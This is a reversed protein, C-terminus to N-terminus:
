GSFYKVVQVIVNEVSPTSTLVIKDTYKGAEEATTTGICFVVSENLDNESCYSKVASPSFFLVGDFIRDIKKPSLETDYVEVEKLPIGAKKLGKPLADHRSKGCIFLFSEGSHEKVILSALDEGYNATKCIHFGNQTLFEATKYGVCFINRQQFYRKSPHDLIAKVANKSTFIINEPIENIKFPLPVISIFEKEVLGIGRNLLLERQNTKLKKTSLVTVRSETSHPFPSNPETKESM